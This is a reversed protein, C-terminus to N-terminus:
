FLISTEVENRIDKSLLQVLMAFDFIPMAESYMKLLHLSVQKLDFIEYCHILFDSHVM